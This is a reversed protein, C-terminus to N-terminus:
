RRAAQEAGELSRARGPHRFLATAFQRAAEERRGARLLIEGFLEHSPKIIPPPGPPVPTAEELSTARRMTAIAEDLDGRAASAAAAIELAQVELVPVLNAAFPISAGALQARIAKLESVQAHADGSGTMAAALGRAFVAPAQALAAFAAHQGSGSDSSPAAGTRRPPLLEPTQDWRASEIVFTAAMIAQTYSGYRLSRTDNGPVKALSDRITALLPLADEVRREQLYAYLL